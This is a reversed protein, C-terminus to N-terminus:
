QSAITRLHAITIPVIVPPSPFSSSFPYFPYIQFNHSAGLLFHPTNFFQGYVLLSFNSLMDRKKQKTCVLNELEGMKGNRGLLLQAEKREGDRGHVRVVKCCFLEM